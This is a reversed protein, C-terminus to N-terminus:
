NVILTNFDLNDDHVDDADAAAGRAQVEAQQHFLEVRRVSDADDLAVLGVVKPQPTTKESAVISLM